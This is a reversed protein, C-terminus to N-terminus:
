PKRISDLNQKKYRYVNHQRCVLWLNELSHTGGQGWGRIHDFELQHQSTCQKGTKPDQYQCCGGDRKWIQRKLELPIARTFYRKQRTNINGSSQLNDVEKEIVTTKFTSPSSNETVTGRSKMSSISESQNQDSPEVKLNDPNQRQGKEQDLIIENTKILGQQNDCRKILGKKVKIEQIALPLAKKLINALDGDPCSHSLLSKMEKIVEVLESDAEFHFKKLIKKEPPPLGQETSKKVAMEHKKEKLIEEAKHAPAGETAAFLEEKEGETLM